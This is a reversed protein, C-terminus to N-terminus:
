QALGVLKHGLTHWAVGLYRLVVPGATSASIAAVIAVAAALVLVVLAWGSIRSRYLRSVGKANVIKTGVRLQTLFTSAMGSRGKDLFEELTWHTGVSVILDAGREDALLLAVDESTGAAPCAVADLNLAHLRAMGPAFGDAYAHVVLEGACRLAEDSVSDMDGIIVDPLYGAELLADAGGDVGVMVPRFERIYPRLAALDERYRYGRVVVLVHRGAMVTRLEPVPLGDVLLQHERKLFEMTNAVFAEMQTVVGARANAMAAEVSAATQPRGKAVVQDGAYLTDGDLRLTAGDRVRTFVEPGVDDLLPIGAQVLLQPGLNPYRGSVSVAANVVAGVKRRILADAAVRDLDVHDIIAIDGPELRKTLNKTRRDLRATAVLGVPADPRGRRVVPIWQSPAKM